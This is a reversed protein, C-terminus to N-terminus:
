PSLRLRTLFEWTVAKWGKLTIFVVVILLAVGNILAAIRFLMFLFWQIRKRRGHVKEFSRELLSKGETM